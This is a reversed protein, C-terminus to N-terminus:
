DQLYKIGRVPVRIRLKAISVNLSDLLVPSRKSPKPIKLKWSILQFKKRNEEVSIKETYETFVQRHVCAATITARLEEANFVCHSHVRTTFLSGTIPILSILVELLQERTLARDFPTM